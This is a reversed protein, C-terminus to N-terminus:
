SISFDNVSVSLLRPRSSTGTWARRVRMTASIQDVKMVVVATQSIVQLTVAPVPKSSRLILKLNLSPKLHTQPRMRYNPLSPQLNEFFSFSAEHGGAGGLFNWGGGQFFEFPSENIHKMIPGWNLNVPGESM